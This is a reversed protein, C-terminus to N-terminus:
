RKKTALIQQQLVELIQGSHELNKGLTDIRIVFDNPRIRRQLRTPLELQTEIIWLLPRTQDTTTERYLAKLQQPTVKGGHHSSKLIMLREPAVDSFYGELADHTLIIKQFPSAQLYKKLEASSHYPCKLNKTNEKTSTFSLFEKIKEFYVCGIQPNLWFHAVSHQSLKLNLKKAMEGANLILNQPGHLKKHLSTRWSDGTLNLIKWDAKLFEKIAKTSPEFHHPDQQVNFPLNVSLKHHQISSPVISQVLLKLHYDSVSIVGAGDTENAVASLPAFGGLILWCLLLYPLYIPSNM